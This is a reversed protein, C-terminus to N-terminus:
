PVILGGCYHLAYAETGEVIITERGHFHRVDGENEDVYTGYEGRWEFGGLFRGERYLSSLATKITHGAREADILDPRSIFGYYNMAWHPVTRFWLVEQGLFNSGGFYSDRYEWDGDCWTLDHSGRRSPESRNGGGVYCAAKARVVIDNLTKM